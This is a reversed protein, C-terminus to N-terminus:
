PGVLTDVIARLGQADYNNSTYVIVGDPGVVVDRPYPFTNTGTFNVLWSTGQHNLLPYTIGAQEKMAALTNSDESFQPVNLAFIHIKDGLEDHLDQLDSM